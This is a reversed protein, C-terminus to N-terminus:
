PLALKYYLADDCTFNILVIIKHLLKLLNKQNLRKFKNYVFVLRNERRLISDLQRREFLEPYNYSNM